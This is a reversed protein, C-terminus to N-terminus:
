KAFVIVYLPDRLALGGGGGGGEERVKAIFALTGFKGV